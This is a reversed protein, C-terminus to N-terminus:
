RESRGELVVTPAQCPGIAYAADGDEPARQLQIQGEAGLPVSAADAAAESLQPHASPDDRSPFAAAAQRRQGASFRLDGPEDGVSDRVTLDSVPEEERGM